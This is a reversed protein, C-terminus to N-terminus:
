LWARSCRREALSSVVMNLFLMAVFAALATKIYMTPDAEIEEASKGILRLWTNGFLPGYWLFGLFMSVFTGVIVSLWNISIFSFM